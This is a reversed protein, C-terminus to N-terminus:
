MSNYLLITLEVLTTALLLTVTGTALLRASVVEAGKYNDIQRIM